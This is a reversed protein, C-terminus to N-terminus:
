IILTVIMKGNRRVLGATFIDAFEIMKVLPGTFGVDCRIGEKSITIRYLEGIFSTKDPKNPQNRESHLSGFAHGSAELDEGSLLDILFCAIPSTLSKKVPIELTEPDVSWGSNAKTITLIVM